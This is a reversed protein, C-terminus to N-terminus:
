EHTAFYVNNNRESIAINNYKRFTFRPILCSFLIMNIKIDPKGEASYFICFIREKHAIVINHPLTKWLKKGNIIFSIYGHATSLRLM